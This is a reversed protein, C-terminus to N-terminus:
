HERCVSARHHRQHQASRVSAGLTVEATASPWAIDYERLRWLNVGDNQWDKLM